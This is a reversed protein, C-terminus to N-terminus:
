ILVHFLKRYVIQKRELTLILILTKDESDQSNIKKIPKTEQPLEQNSSIKKTKM